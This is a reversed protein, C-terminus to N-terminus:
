WCATLTYRMEV